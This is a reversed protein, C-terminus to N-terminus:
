HSGDEGHHDRQAGATVHVVSFGEAADNSKTALIIETSPGTQPEGILHPSDLVLHTELKQPGDINMQIPDLLIARVRAQGNVHRPSSAAGYITLRHGGVTARYGMFEDMRKPKLMPDSSRREELFTKRRSDAISMRGVSPSHLLGLKQRAGKRLGCHLVPRGMVETVSPKAGM